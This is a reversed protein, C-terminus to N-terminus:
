CFQQVDVFCIDHQLLPAKGMQQAASPNACSRSETESLHVIILGFPCRWKRSTGEAGM